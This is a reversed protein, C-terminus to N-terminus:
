KETIYELGLMPLIPLGKMFSERNLEYDWDADEVNDRLPWTVHQVDIFLKM